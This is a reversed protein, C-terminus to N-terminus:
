IYQWNLITSLKTNSNDYYDDRATQRKHEDVRECIINVRKNARRRGQRGKGLRPLPPACM